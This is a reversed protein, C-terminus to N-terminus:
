LYRRSIIRLFKQVSKSEPDWNFEENLFSSAQDISSFQNLNQICFQYKESEGKFLEKIFWIKDNLSIGKNIDDLKSLKLQSALDNGDKSEALVDFLSKKNSVLEEGLVKGSKKAIVKPEPKQKDADIRQQEQQEQQLRSEREAKERMERQKEQLEEEELKLRREREQQMRLEKEQELLRQEMETKERLLRYEQEQKLRLLEQEKQRQERLQAQLNEEQEKQRQARLQEQLYEEQETRQKQLEQELKNRELEQEQEQKLNDSVLDLSNQLVQKEHDSILGLLETISKLRNACLELEVPLIRKQIDFQGAIKQLDKIDQKLLELLIEKNM